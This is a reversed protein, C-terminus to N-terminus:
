QPKNGNLWMWHCHKNKWGHPHVTVAGYMNENMKRRTEDTMENERAGQTYTCKSICQEQSGSPASSPSWKAIRVMWMNECYTVALIQRFLYAKERLGAYFLSRSHSLSLFISRSVSLSSCIWPLHRGLSLVNSDGSHKVRFSKESNVLFAHECSIISWANSELTVCEHGEKNKKQFVGEVIPFISFPKLYIRLYECCFCEFTWIDSILFNLIHFRFYSRKNRYWINQHLFHRTIQRLKSNKVM